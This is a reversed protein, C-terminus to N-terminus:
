FSVTWCCYKDYKEITDKYTISTKIKMGRKAYPSQYDHSIIYTKTIRRNRLEDTACNEEYELHIIYKKSVRILHDITIDIKESNINMFVGVSFGVDYSNDHFPM